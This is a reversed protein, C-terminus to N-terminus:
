HVQVNGQEIPRDALRHEVRCQGPASEAFSHILSIQDQADAGEGNDQVSFVATGGVFDARASRTITGSIYATNGVVQLCDIRIHEYFDIALANLQAQGTVTGDDHTIASFTFARLEGNLDFHGSGTASPGNASAGAPGAALAAATIVAASITLAGIRARQLSRKIAVTM